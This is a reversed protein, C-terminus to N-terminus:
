NGRKKVLSSLEDMFEDIDKFSRYVSAFRIYAVEDLERLRKMVYEGIQEAPIEELSLAGIDKGVDDVLQKIQKVSIPRKDCAKSVGLMLKDTDWQERRGDKKVVMPFAGESREYTTFRHSCADCSRRRRIEYGEKITRSDIVRTDPESCVPCKM